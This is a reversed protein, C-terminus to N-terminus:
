GVHKTAKNADLVFWTDEPYFKLSEQPYMRTENTVEWTWSVALQTIEEAYEVLAADVNSSLFVHPFWFGESIADEWNKLM